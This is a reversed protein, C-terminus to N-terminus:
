FCLKKKMKCTRLCRDTSHSGGCTAFYVECKLAIMNSDSESKDQDVDKKTKEANGQGCTSIDSIHGEKRRFGHTAHVRAFLSTPVM